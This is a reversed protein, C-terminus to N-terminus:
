NAAEYPKSFIPRWDMECLWVKGLFFPAPSFL